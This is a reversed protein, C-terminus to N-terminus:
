DIYKQNDKVGFIARSSEDKPRHKVKKKSFKGDEVKNNTTNTLKSNM